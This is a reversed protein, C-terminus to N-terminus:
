RLSRATIIPEDAASVVAIVEGSLEHSLHASVDAISLMGVSHGKEEVLLSGIDNERMKRAATTIADDPLVAITQHSMIEKVQM